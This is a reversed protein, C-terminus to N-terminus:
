LVKQVNVVYMLDAIYKSTSSSLCALKPTSSLSKKWRMERWSNKATQSSRFLKNPVEFCFNWKLLYKSLIDWLLYSLNNFQFSKEIFRYWKNKLQKKNHFSPNIWCFLRVITFQLGNSLNTIKETWLNFFDESTSWPGHKVIHNILSCESVEYPSIDSYPHGGTQSTQIWSNQQISVIM